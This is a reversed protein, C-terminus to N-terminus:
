LLRKLAVENPCNGEESIRHMLYLPITQISKHMNVSSAKM